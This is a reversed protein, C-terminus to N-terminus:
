INIPKNSSLRLNVTTRLLKKNKQQEVQYATQTVICPIYEYTENITVRLWTYPSTLLEQYLAIGGDNLWNSQLVYNKKVDINTIKSGGDTIDLTSNNGYKIFHKFETREIEINIDERNQFAMSQISGMSDLFYVQNAEKACRTDAYLSYKETLSEGSVNVIYFDLRDDQNPTISFRDYGVRAQKVNSYTPGETSILTNASAIFAGSQNYREWIIRWQTQNPQEAYYNVWFDQTPTVYTKLNPNADTVFKSPLSTLLSRNNGVNYDLAYNTYVWDRWPIWDLAGNFATTGSHSTLGTFQIKQLNAYTTEGSIAITAASTVPFLLDIIFTKADASLVTHLGNVTATTGTPITIVDVTNGVVYSHDTSGSIKTFGSYQTTGTHKVLQNYPYVYTFEEGIQAYYNIHAGSANSTGNTTPAFTKDVLNSLIKSVDIYGTGDVDPTVKFRGISSNDSTKYLDVLYRFGGLERAVSFFSYVIPNYAPMLNQPAVSLSIQTAGTASFTIASTSSAYDFIPSSANVPTVHVLNSSLVFNFNNSYDLVLANYINAAQTNVTAGTSALGTGTRSQVITETAVGIDNNVGWNPFVKFSITSGTAIPVSNVIITLQM